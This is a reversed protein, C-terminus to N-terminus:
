KFLAPKVKEDIFLCFDDLWVVEHKKALECILGVVLSFALKLLIKKM